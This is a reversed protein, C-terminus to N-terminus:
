GDTLGNRLEPEIGIILNTTQIYADLAEDVAQSRSYVQMAVYEGTRRLKGLTDINGELSGSQEQAYQSHRLFVETTLRYQRIKAGLELPLLFHPIDPYSESIARKPLPEDYTSPITIEISTGM